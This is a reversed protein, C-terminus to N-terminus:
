VHSFILLLANLNKNERNMQNHAVELTCFDYYHDYIITFYDLLLSNLIDRQDKNVLLKINLFRSHEVLLEHFEQCDRLHAVTPQSWVRLRDVQPCLTICMDDETDFSELSTFSTKGM